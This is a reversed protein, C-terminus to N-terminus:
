QISERNARAIARHLLKVLTADGRAELEFDAVRRKLVERTEVGTLNSLVNRM